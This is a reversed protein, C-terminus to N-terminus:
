KTYDTGSHYDAIVISLLEDIFENWCQIRIDGRMCEYMDLSDMPKYRRTDNLTAKDIELLNSKKSIYLILKDKLTM